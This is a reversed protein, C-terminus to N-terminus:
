SPAATEEAAGDEPEVDADVGGAEALQRLRESRERQLQQQRESESTDPSAASAGGSGGAIREKVSSYANGFSKAANSSRAATWRQSLKAAVSHALGSTRDKAGKAASATRQYTGSEKLQMWSTRFDTRLEGLVTVGLRRKLDNARRLKSNLVQRLTQIEEETKELELMWDRRQIEREEESMAQLKAEDSNSAETHEADLSEGYDGQAGSFDQHGSSAM